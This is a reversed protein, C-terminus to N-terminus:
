VSIKIVLSNYILDTPVRTSEFIVSVFIFPRSSRKDEHGGMYYRLKLLTAMMQLVSGELPKLLPRTQMLIPGLQRPGLQRLDSKDMIGFLVDILTPRTVAKVTVYRKVKVTGKDGLPDHM